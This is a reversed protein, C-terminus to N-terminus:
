FLGGMLGSFLGGGGSQTTTTTGKGAAAALAGTNANNLGLSMNWLNSAPTQAAEQAAAATTIGNMANGTIANGINAKQANVNTVGSLYDNVLGRQANNGAMQNGFQQGYVGLAFNNNSYINNLMQQTLNGQSDLGRMRRDLANGTNAYQQNYLNGQNGLLQVTDSTGSTLLNGVTNINEIYNRAMTDAVNRSIDDMAGQAVSSNIVGRNALSNINAGMTRNIASKMAESMNDTYESPLRGNILDERVGSYKDYTDNYRNILDGLGANARNAADIGMQATEEYKPILADLRKNYEDTAASNNSILGDTKDIYRDVYGPIANYLEGMQNTAFDLARQNDGITQRLYNLGENNQERAQNYLNDYDVQITGLSNALVDRAINNLWLANPAVADAYDAQSKQLQLEYDSPEYTQTTTSGGGGFLQLDIKFDM